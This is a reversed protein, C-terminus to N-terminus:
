RAVKRYRLVRDHVSPGSADFPLELKKGDMVLAGRFSTPWSPARSDIVRQAVAEPVKMVEDGTWRVGVLGLRELAEHRSREAEVVAAVAEAYGEVTPDADLFYKGLGDAELFVGRDALLGDVRGVLEGREDLVSVQPLPIACGLLHLALFSYSELWSERRPDALDLAALARPRGKWRVQGDLVARVRPVTTLQRRLADDLLAVGHPLKRTRLCDAVTRDRDTAPLGGADVRRIVTSDTHHLVLGDERRSSPFRDVATLEVPSQPSLVVALGHLVAASSHSAVHGPRRHLEFAVRERHDEVTREWQEGEVQPPTTVYWGRRPHRLDGAEVLRQLQARDLGRARAEALTFFPPLNLHRM